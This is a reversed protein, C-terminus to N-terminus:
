NNAPQHRDLPWCHHSAIPLMLQFQHAAQFGRKIGLAEEVEGLVSTYDARERDLKNILVARPTGLDGALKSMKETQTEIGEVACVVLVAGDMAQLPLYADHIFDGDGPSDAVHFKHNAFECTLFSCTLSGGREKEEPEHDLLSSGDAVSGLRTNLGTLYAFADAVSTKGAGSHGVLTFSRINMSDYHKM